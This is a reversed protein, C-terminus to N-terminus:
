PNNGLAIILAHVRGEYVNYQLTFDGPKGEPWLSVEASRITMTAPYRDKLWESHYLNVTTEDRQYTKTLTADDPLFTKGTNHADTPTPYNDQPFDYDIRSVMGDIFAVAVGNAYKPGFPGQGVLAGAKAEWAARSMGLGGTPESSTSM